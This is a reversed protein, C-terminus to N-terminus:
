ELEKAANDRELKERKRTEIEKREDETDKEL